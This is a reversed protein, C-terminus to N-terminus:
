DGDCKQYIGSGKTMPTASCIYDSWLLYRNRLFTLFSPFTYLPPLHANNLIGIPRMIPLAASAVAATPQASCTPPLMSGPKM